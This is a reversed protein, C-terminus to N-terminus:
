CGQVACIESGSLLQTGPVPQPYWEPTAKMVDLGMLLAEGLVENKKQGSGPATGAARM